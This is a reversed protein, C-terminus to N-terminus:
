GVGRDAATEPAHVVTHCVIQNAVFYCQAELKLCQALLLLFLLPRLGGVGKIKKTRWLTLDCRFTISRAPLTLAPKWIFLHAAPSLPGCGEAKGIAMLTM